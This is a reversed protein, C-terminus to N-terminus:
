FNIIAKYLKTKRKKYSKFFKKLYARNNLCHLKWYNQNINHERWNNIGCLDFVHM